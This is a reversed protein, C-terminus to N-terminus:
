QRVASRLGRRMSRLGAEVRFRLKPRRLVHWTMHGSRNGLSKKYRENGALFDYVRDGRDLSHQIALSHSVLGPKLKSNEEYHFGSQYNYVHGGQAFNYLYGVAGHAHGIRALQISGAHFGSRILSQHFGDMFNDSFAGPEGKSAWYQQHLAKLCRYYELAEDLDEAIHFGLAGYADEYLRMSRRIQHRKNSSLHQLYCKGSGRVEVLDVYSWDLSGDVDHLLKASRPIWWEEGTSAFGGMYFEDWEPRERELYTWVAAHVDHGSDRDTLLGNHEIMLRDFKPDGTQHIYFGNSHVIVHRRHSRAVGVALGVTRDRQRVRVLM